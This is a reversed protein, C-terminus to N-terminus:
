YRSVDGLEDTITEDLLRTRAVVGGHACPWHRDIFAETSRRLAPVRALEAVVRYEPTLFAQALPDDAVRETAPRRSELARFLANQCATRSPRGTRM